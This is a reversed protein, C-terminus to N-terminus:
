PFAARDVMGLPHSHVQGCRLSDRRDSTRCWAPDAYLTSSRHLAHAQRPLAGKLQIPGGEEESREVTKM